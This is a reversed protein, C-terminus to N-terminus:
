GEVLGASRAWNWARRDAMGRDLAFALVDVEAGVVGVVEWADDTLEWLHKVSVKLCDCMSRIFVDDHRIRGAWLGDIRKGHHDLDFEIVRHLAPKYLRLARLGRCVRAWSITIFARHDEDAIVAQEVPNGIRKDHRVYVFSPPSPVEIERRKGRIVVEHSWRHYLRGLSEEKAREGM